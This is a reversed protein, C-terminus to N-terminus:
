KTSGGRVAKAKPVLVGEMVVQIIGAFGARPTINLEMMKVPILIAQVAALVIEIVLAAPIDERVIGQERGRTLLQRFHIRIMEHRRTQILEFFEPPERHMDRVFQPTIEQSHRHIVDLFRRLDELFDGGASRTIASFDVEAEGLKQLIIARLLEHKSTFCAYLTKKSMGLEGALEDMTARRFGNEFFYRRAAALIFDRPRAPDSVPRRSPKSRRILFNHGKLFQYLKILKRTATLAPEGAALLSDSRPSMRFAKIRNIKLSTWNSIMM